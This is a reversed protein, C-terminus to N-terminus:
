QLLHTLAIGQVFVRLVGIATTCLVYVIRTTELWSCNSGCHCVAPSLILLFFSGALSDFVVVVCLFSDIFSHRNTPSSYSSFQSSSSM